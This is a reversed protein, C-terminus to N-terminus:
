LIALSDSPVICGTNHMEPHRQRHQQPHQDLSELEAEWHVLVVVGAEQKTGSENAHEIQPYLRYHTKRDNPTDIYRVKTVTPFSRKFQAMLVLADRCRHQHVSWSRWYSHVGCNGEENKKRCKEQVQVDTQVITFEHFQGM